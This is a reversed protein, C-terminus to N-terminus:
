NWLLCISEDRDGFCLTLHKLGQAQSVKSTSLIKTPVRKSCISVQSLRCIRFNHQLKDPFCSSGSPTSDASVMQVILHERQQHLDKSFCQSFYKRIQADCNVYVVIYLQYSPLLKTVIIFEATHFVHFIDKVRLQRWKAM